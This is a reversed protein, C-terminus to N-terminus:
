RSNAREVQTQIGLPLGWLGYEVHMVPFGGNRDPRPSKGQPVSFIYPIEIHWQKEFQNTPLSFLTNGGPPISVPSGVESEYSPPLKKPRKKAPPDDSSISIRHPSDYVVRDMIAVEDSPLHGEPFGNARVDITVRCNNVLRLWVRNVGEHDSRPTGSGYHDFQVYIYTENPNIIFRPETPHQAVSRLGIDLMLFTLLTRACRM